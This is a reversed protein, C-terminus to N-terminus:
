ATQARDHRRFRRFLGGQKRESPQPTEEVQEPAAAPTEAPMGSQRELRDLRSELTRYRDGDRGAPIRERAPRSSVGFVEIGFLLLAPFMLAVIIITALIQESTTLTFGLSFHVKSSDLTATQSQRWVVWLLWGLLVGWAITILSVFLRNFIQM